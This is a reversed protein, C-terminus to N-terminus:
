NAITRNRRNQREKRRENKTYGGWVGFLEENDLAFELCDVVVPCIQCLEKGIPKLGKEPFFWELPSYKCIRGERVKKPLPKAMEYSTARWPRGNEMSVNRLREDTRDSTEYFKSFKSRRNFSKWRENREVKRVCLSQMSVWGYIRRNWTATGDRFNTASLERCVM